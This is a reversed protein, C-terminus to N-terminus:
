NTKELQTIKGSKQLPTPTPSHKEFHIVREGCTRDRDRDRDRDRNVGRVWVRDRDRVRNVLLPWCDPVLFLNSNKGQPMLM